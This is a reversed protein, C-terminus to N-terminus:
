ALGVWDVWDISEVWELADAHREANLESLGCGYRERFEVQVLKREDATLGALLERIVAEEETRPQALPKPTPVRQAASQGDDDETALGLAALVSYRRAYTIASGVQQPTGGAPLRVAPWTVFQGSSHVLTTSVIAERETTEAAQTLVLGHVALVPRAMGLVSALDAYTYSYKGTSVSKDKALDRMEGAAVVWAAALESIADSRDAWM